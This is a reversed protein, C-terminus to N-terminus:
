RLLSDILTRGSAIADRSRRSPLELARFSENSEALCMLGYSVSRCETASANPYIKRLYNTVSRQSRAYLEGIQTRIAVDRSAAAYLEFFLVDDRETFKSLRGGFLYTLLVEADDQESVGALGQELAEDYQSLVYDVMAEILGARSGFHHSILPQTVGAEAAVCRLSSKEIGYETICRKFAELIETQREGSLNRRERETM